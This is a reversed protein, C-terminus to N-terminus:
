AIVISSEPDSTRPGPQQVDVMGLSVPESAAVTKGIVVDITQEFIALSVDPHCRPCAQIAKM